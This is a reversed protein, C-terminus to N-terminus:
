PKASAESSSKTDVVPEVDSVISAKRRAKDQRIASTSYIALAAWILAFAALHVTGFPEGFIAVACIFQLTPNIYQVIGVTSMALRRAGYSFLILPLATMPGSAILLASHALDGGFAGGAGTHLHILWAVALPTLILVEATVSVVPGMDLRKKVLGYVGFTTALVLSIWPLVQLGITLMLVAGAALSVAVWQARSLTEGLVLRGILVAVLPFIYYGMSSETARGVQISWIFLFWNVSIMMSALIVIRWSRGDTVAAFLASLRGQLILVGAFFVLSWLTRHALVELPPVDSLAKYFLPSLGWITCAAILALVGKRTDTM